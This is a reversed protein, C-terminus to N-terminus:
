QEKILNSANGLVGADVDNVNVYSVSDCITCVNTRLM